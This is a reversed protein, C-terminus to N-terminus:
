RGGFLAPDRGPLRDGSFGFWRRPPSFSGFSIWPSIRLFEHVGVRVPGARVWRRMVGFHCFRSPCPFRLEPLCLACPVHLLCLAGAAGVSDCRGMDSGYPRPCSLARESRPRCLGSGGGSSVRSGAATGRRAARAGGYAARPVRPYRAGGLAVVGLAVVGEVELRPPAAVLTRQGRERVHQAGYRRVRGRFGLRRPGM